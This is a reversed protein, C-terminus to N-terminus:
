DNSFEAQHLQRGAFQVYTAIAVMMHAYNDIGQTQVFKKWAMKLAPLVFNMKEAIQITNEISSDHAEKNDFEKDLRIDQIRHEIFKVNISTDDSYRNVHKVIVNEVHDGDVRKPIVIAKNDLLEEVAINGIAKIIRRYALAQSSESIILRENRRRERYELSKLCDACHSKDYDKFDGCSHCKLDLDSM